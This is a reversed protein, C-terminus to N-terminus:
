DTVCFGRKGTLLARFYKSVWGPHPYMQKFEIQHQAVPNGTGDFILFRTSTTGQDISGVFFDKLSGEDKAASVNADNGGLHQQQQSAADISYLSMM